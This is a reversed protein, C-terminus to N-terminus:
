RQCLDEEQEQTLTAPGGRENALGAALHLKIRSRNFDTVNFRRLVQEARDERGARIKYTLETGHWAFGSFIIV